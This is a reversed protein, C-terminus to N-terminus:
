NVGGWGGELQPDAMPFLVVEATSLQSIKFLIICTEIKNMQIQCDTTITPLILPPQGQEKVTHTVSLEDRKSYATLVM